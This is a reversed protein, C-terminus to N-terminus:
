ARRSTSSAAQVYGLRDGAHLPQIAEHRKMEVREGFSELLVLRHDAVRVVRESAAAIDFPGATDVPDRVYGASPAGEPAASVVIATALALM